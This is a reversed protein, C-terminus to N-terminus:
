SLHLRAMSGVSSVAPPRDKAEVKRLGGLVDRARIDAIAKHGLTPFIYIENMRLWKSAHSKSWGEAKNKHFERAVTEYTNAAALKKAHKAEQKATSPDLGQALQEKAKARGERAQKLTVAPYIGLALTKQKGHMRYAMRWYKGTATVHLYLGGGGSHKDGAAKGSHKTSNKIFTDNLPKPTSRNTTKNTNPSDTCPPNLYIGVCRGVFQQYSM